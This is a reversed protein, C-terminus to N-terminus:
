ELLLRCVLNERSQLESTHEESRVEILIKHLDVCGVNQEDYATGEVSQVLDDTIAGFTGANTKRSRHSGLGLTAHTFQEGLDLRLVQDLEAQNGLQHATQGDYGRQFLKLFIGQHANQGLWAIG